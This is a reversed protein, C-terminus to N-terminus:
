VRNQIFCSFTPHIRYHPYDRMFILTRAHRLEAHYYNNKLFHVKPPSKPMTFTKHFYSIYTLLVKSDFDTKHMAGTRLMQWHFWGKEPKTFPINGHDKLVSSNGIISLLILLIRHAQLICNAKTQTAKLMSSMEVGSLSTASRIGESLQSIGAVSPLIWLDKVSKVTCTWLGLRGYWQLRFYLSSQILLGSFELLVRFCSALSGASSPRPTFEEDNLM